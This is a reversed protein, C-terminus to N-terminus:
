KSAAILHLMELGSTAAALATVGAHDYGPAVEMDDMAVINLGQL